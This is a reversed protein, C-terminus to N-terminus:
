SFHTLSELENVNPLRWDNYSATYGGCSYDGPNANFDAVRDLADQWAMWEFCGRGADKLWMLGTLNDTVTGDENDTFRPDPWPLGRQLDGDSGVVGYSDTQGTQPVVSM